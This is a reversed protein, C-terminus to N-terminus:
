PSYNVTVDYLIPTASQNNTSFYAKYRFCSGPNAYSGATIFPIPGATTYYSTATGDPGLYDYTIGDCSENIEHAVAVQFSLSTQPPTITTFSFRNFVGDHGLRFPDSEFTGSSSFNGGPGGQIIKLENDADGTIIYSYADGDSELVSAVGNVGTDINLGGCSIPSGENTIDVVQYETGDAGVIIVKNGPVATIGKPNMGQTDYSGVIPQEGTKTSVNLIFFESQTPSAVTALYARTGSTNVFIAKADGSNVSAQGVVTLNEPNSIDVIQLKISSEAISVYAYNGVVYVNTGVGVLTVGDVDLALRSGFKSSLDFSYLKDNGVMYGVPGAVFVSNASGNGPANFYGEESFPNTTLDIIEIEKSNTDTALYAYDAEGFIGNTKYGNFTGEVTAVPPDTNSIAVSAYSVGSANEGTGAFVKGEIASIANAVGQKPLNAQALTLSPACWQGQGGAGLSIEGGATNTVNVSTQVGPTFDPVATETHTLNELYRTLYFM